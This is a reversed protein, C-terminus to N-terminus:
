APGSFLEEGRDLRGIEPAWQRASLPPDLREHSGGRPRPLGAVAEEVRALRERLTALKERTEEGRGLADGIKAADELVDDLSAPNLSLIEPRSKLSSAAEEVLNM